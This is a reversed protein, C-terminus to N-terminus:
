TIQSKQKLSIDQSDSIYHADYIILMLLALYVFTYVEMIMMFLFIWLVFFLFQIAPSNNAKQKIIVSVIQLVFVSLACIGGSMLIQLILNHTHKVHLYGEYWDPSCYGYGIIPSDQILLLSKMWVTTRQTFTLDKHLIDEVFYRIYEYESLDMQVFVVVAQFAFYVFVFGLFLWTRIRNSKIFYFLFLLSLGVISTKSGVIFLTLFSILSIIYFSIKERHYLITYYGYIGIAPIITRGMQNYNGGLLFFAGFGNPYILLIVFNLIICFCFSRIITKYILEGYSPLYLKFLGWLMFVDFAISVVPFISSSKHIITSYGIIGGYLVFWFAISDLKRPSRIILMLFIGWALFRLGSFLVHVPPFIELHLSNRIILVFIIFSIIISIARDSSLRNM